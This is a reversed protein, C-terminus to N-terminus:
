WCGSYESEHTPFIIVFGKTEATNQRPRGKISIVRLLVELRRLLSAEIPLFHRYLYHPAQYTSLVQLGQDM